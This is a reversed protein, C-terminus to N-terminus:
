ANLASMFDGVWRASTIRRGGVRMTRLKVRGAGARVGSLAWRLVTNVHVGQRSAVETLSLRDNLGPLM